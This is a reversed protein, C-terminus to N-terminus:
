FKLWFKICLWFHSVAVDTIFKEEAICCCLPFHSFYSNTALESQLPYFFAFSHRNDVTWATTCWCVSFHSCDSNKAIETQLPCFLLFTLNQYFLASSRCRNDVKRSAICCCVPFHSIDSNTALETQLRYFLADTTLTEHPQAGVSRFTPFALIQEWNWNAISLFTRFQTQQWRKMRNHVLMGFLPFLWFKNCTWNEILLFTRFKEISQFSFNCCIRVKAVQLTSTRV